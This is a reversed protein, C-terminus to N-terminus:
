RSVTAPTFRRPTTSAHWTVARRCTRSSGTANRGVAYRARGALRHEVGQRVCPRRRAPDRHSGMRLRAAPSPARRPSNGGRHRGRRAGDHRPIPAAHLASRCGGLAGALLFALTGVALVLAAPGMDAYLAIANGVLGRDAIRPNELPDVHLGPRAEAQLQSEIAPDRLFGQYDLLTYPSTVLFALIAVGALLATGSIRRALPARQRVALAMFGLWPVFCVPAVSYKTSVALGAVAAAVVLGGYSRRQWARVLLWLVATALATTPTDTVAYHAHLTLAGMLAVLGAAITGLRRGGLRTGLLYVFGITLWGYTASLLRAAYILDAYEGGMGFVVRSVLFVQYIFFGPYIFFGLNLSGWGMQAVRAFIISEDPHLDYPLGWALGIFRLAFGAAGILLLVAANRNLTLERRAAPEGNQVAM